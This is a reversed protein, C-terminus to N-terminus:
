FVIEEWYKLKSSIGKEKGRERREGKSEEEFSEFKRTGKPYHRRAFGLTREDKEWSGLHKLAEMKLSSPANVGIEVEENGDFGFPGNPRRKEM